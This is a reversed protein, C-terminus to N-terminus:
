AKRSPSTARKKELGIEGYTQESGEPVFIPDWNFKYDGTSRKVIQGRTGM